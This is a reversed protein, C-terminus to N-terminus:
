KAGSFVSKAAKKQPNWEIAKRVWTRWAADWDKFASGKSRHHDLFQETERTLFSKEVGHETGWQVHDDTLLFEKPTPTARNRSKGNGERGKGEGQEPLLLEPIADDVRSSRTLENFDTPVPLTSVAEKNNIAQHEKFTPVWGFQRGDVEYHRIFNRTSLADLVRSFDVEDYPLCDLKLEEPVWRFRGERDCATWLGAFAIRLPLGTEKEARYLDLHRFFSPKVTRIRAM